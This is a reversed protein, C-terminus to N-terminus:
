DIPRGSIFNFLLPHYLDPRDVMPTHGAGGLVRLLSGQVVQHILEGERPPRIQDAGGQMILTPVTVSRLVDLLNLSAMSLTTQVAAERSAKVADDVLREFNDPRRAFFGGILGGLNERTWPMEGFHAARGKAAEPDRVFAGTASLVLRELREQYRTAFSQCILGGLSNGVLVIRELGQADLFKRIDDAFLSVGYPGAPKDSDGFGKIDLAFARFGSPLQRLTPEWWLSSQCFGHIFVVPVDGGGATRYHLRVHDIEAYPMSEGM